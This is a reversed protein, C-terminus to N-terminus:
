FFGSSAGRVSLNESMSSSYDFLVRELAVAEPPTPDLAKGRVAGYAAVAGLAALATTAFQLPVLEPTPPGFLRPELVAFGTLSLVYAAAISSALALGPRASEGGVIEGAAWPIAGLPAPAIFALLLEGFRAPDSQRFLIMAAGHANLVASCAGAIAAGLVICRELRGRELPATFRNLVVMQVAACAPATLVGIAFPALFFAVVLSSLLVSAENACAIAILMQNEL